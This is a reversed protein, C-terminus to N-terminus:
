VGGRMERMLSDSPVFKVNPMPVSESYGKTMINYFRRQATNYCRFTGLTNLVVDDGNLIVERLTNVFAKTIEKGMKYSYGNKESLVRSFDKTNM